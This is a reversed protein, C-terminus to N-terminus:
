AICPDQDEQKHLGGAVRRTFAAQPASMVHQAHCAACVSLCIMYPSLCSVSLSWSILGSVHYDCDQTVSAQLSLTTRMRPWCTYRIQHVTHMLAFNVLTSMHGAAMAYGYAARSHIAACLLERVLSPRQEESEGPLSDAPKPQTQLPGCCGEAQESKLVM